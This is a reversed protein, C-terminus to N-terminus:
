LTGTRSKAISAKGTVSPVLAVLIWFCRSRSRATCFIDAAQIVSALSIIRAVVLQFHGDGDFLMQARSFFYNESKQKCIDAHINARRNYKTDIDTCKPLFM